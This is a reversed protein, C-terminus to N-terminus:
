HGQPQDEPQSASQPAAAPTRIRGILIKLTDSIWQEDVNDYDTAIPDGSAITYSSREVTDSAFVARGDKLMFAIAVTRMGHVKLVYQKFDSTSGEEALEFDRRGEFAAKVMEVLRALKPAEDRDWRFREFQAEDVVSSFQDCAKQFEDQEM